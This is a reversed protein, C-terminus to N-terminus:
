VYDLDPVLDALEAIEEEEPAARELVEKLFKFYVTYVRVKGSDDRVLFFPAREVEFEGALRMGASSPDGEDAIVTRDIHRLLNDTRLRREVDACKRCPSGDRKIKKVFTIHM